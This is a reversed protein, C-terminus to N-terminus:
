FISILGGMGSATGFLSPGIKLNSIPLLKGPVFTYLAFMDRQVKTGKQKRSWRGRAVLPKFSFM